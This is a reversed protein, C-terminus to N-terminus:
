QRTSRRGSSTGEGTDEAEEHARDDAMKRKKNRVEEKKTDSGLNGFFGTFKLRAPTGTNLVSNPGLFTVKELDIIFYKVTRDENREVGTFIGEIATAKGKAPLPMYKEWHKTDPFLCHVPFVASVYQTAHIEFTSDDENVNTAIGAVHVVAHHRMDFNEPSGPPIIWFKDGFAYYDSTLEQSYVEITPSASRQNMPGLDHRSEPENYERRAAMLPGAAAGAIQPVRRQVVARQTTPLTLLGNPFERLVRSNLNPAQSVRPPSAISLIPHLGFSLPRLRVPVFVIIRKWGNGNEASGNHWSGRTQHAKLNLAHQGNANAHACRSQRGSNNNVNADNPKLHSDIIAAIFTPPEDWSAPVRRRHPNDQSRNIDRLIQQVPHQHRQPSTPPTQMYHSASVSTNFANGLGWAEAGGFGGFAGFEGGAGANGNGNAPDHVMLASVPVGPTIGRFKSKDDAIIQDIYVKWRPDTFNRGRKGVQEKLYADTKSWFDQGKPIRGGKKAATRKRKAPSPTAGKSTDDDAEDVVEDIGLLAPHDFAFRRLLAAHVTFLESLEGVGGGLKYKSAMAYTFKDLTVFDGPEIIDRISSCTKKLTSVLKKERVPVGFINELDLKQATAKLTSLVDVHMTFFATRTAEHITDQAIGRINRKQDSTLAFGDDLRIKLDRMMARLDPFANQQEQRRREAAESLIIATTYLRSALDSQTITGGTVTVVQVLGRLKRLDLEGLGFKKALNDIYLPPIIPAALPTMGATNPSPSPSSLQPSQPQSSLSDM